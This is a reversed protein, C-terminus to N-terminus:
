VVEWQGHNVRFRGRHYRLASYIAHGVARPYDGKRCGRRMVEDTLDTLRLPGMERLVAEAAERVSMQTFDKADEPSRHRRDTRPLQQGLRRAVAHLERLTQRYERMAERVLKDRRALADKRLQDLPKM